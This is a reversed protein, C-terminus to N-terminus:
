VRGLRAATEARKSELGEVTALIARALERAAAADLELCVGVREKPGPPFLDIVIGEEVQARIFHDHYVQGDAVESWGSATKASGNLAVRRVQNFECM